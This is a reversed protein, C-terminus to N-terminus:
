VNFALCLEPSTIALCRLKSGFLTM